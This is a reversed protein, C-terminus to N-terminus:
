GEWLQTASVDLGDAQPGKPFFRTHMWVIYESDLTYFEQNKTVREKLLLYDMRSLYVVKPCGMEEMFQHLYALCFHVRTKTEEAM